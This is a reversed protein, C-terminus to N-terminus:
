GKSYNLCKTEMEFKCFRLIKNKTIRIEGNLLLVDDNNNIENIYREYMPWVSIATPGFEDTRDSQRVGGFHETM